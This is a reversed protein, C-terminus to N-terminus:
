RSASWLISLPYLLVLWILASAIVPRRTAFMAVLTLPFLSWTVVMVRPSLWASGGGLLGIASGLLMANAILTGGLVIRRQRFFHGDLDAWEDPEDPFICSAAVFYLATAVFGYFLAPFTPPIVDRMAWAYAWFTVLDLSVFLGVLATLWGIRIKHRVKLAKALGSLGTALALGLLLSFLSFVFEFASM